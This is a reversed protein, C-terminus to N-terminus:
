ADADESPQRRRGKARSASPPPTLWGRSPRTATAEDRPRMVELDVVKLGKSAMEALKRSVHHRHCDSAEAEYCLLATRREGVLELLEKLESKQLPLIKREYDRFMKERSIEENKAQKRWASPVGLQPFHRYEIGAGALNEALRNKSFGRKRSLPNKRLDAVLKIKSKKLFAVFDEIENGEYGVTYVTTM